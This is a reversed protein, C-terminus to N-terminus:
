AKSARRRRYRAFVSALGMGTLTISAPEPVAAPLNPTAAGGVFFSNYPQEQSCAASPSFSSCSVFSATQGSPVTIVGTYFTSGDFAALTTQFRLWLLNGPNGMEFFSLGVFTANPSTAIFENVTGDSNTTDFVGDPQTFSYATVTGAVNDLTFAGTVTSNGGFATAMTGTFGYSISSARATGPTVILSAVILGAVAMFKTM